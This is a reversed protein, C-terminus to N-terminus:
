GGTVPPFFAVEDGENLPHDQKVYDMNVTVLINNDKSLSYKDIISNWLEGVLCTRMVGLHEEACGIQERLSAFYRIKINIKDM